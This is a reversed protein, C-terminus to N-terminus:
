GHIRRSPSWGVRGLPSARRRSVTAPMVPVHIPLNRWNQLRVIKTMSVGSHVRRAQDLRVPSLTAATTTANTATAATTASAAEPSAPAPPSRLLPVAALIVESGGPVMVGVLAELPTLRGIMTTPIPSETVAPVLQSQSAKM